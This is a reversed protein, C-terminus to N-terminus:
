ALSAQKKQSAGYRLQIAKDVQQFYSDFHSLVNKLYGSQLLVERDGDLFECAEVYKKLAPRDVQPLRGDAHVVLNRLMQVNKVNSWPATPENLDLLAVKSLYIRAREIGTGAVDKYSLQYKETVQFISCLKNLEHEFFSFLTILASRRQLNPFYQLFIGQLDWSADDLGKHVTIFRPPEDQHKGEVCVEEADAKFDNATKDAQCEVNDIYAELIEISGTVDYRYWNLPHDLPLFKM